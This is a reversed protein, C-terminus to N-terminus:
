PSVPQRYDRDDLVWHETATARYIRLEAPPELDDLGFVGGGHSVSRASFVEIAGLRDDGLLEEATAAM